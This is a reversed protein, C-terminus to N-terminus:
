SDLVESQFVGDFRVVVDKGWELCSAKVAARVLRRIMTGRLNTDVFWGGGLDESHKKVWATNKGVFLDGRHRSLYNRVRGISHLVELIAPHRDPHDQLLLRLLDKLIDIKDLSRYSVGKYIFGRPLYKHKQPEVAVQPSDPQQCEGHSVALPPPPSTFEDLVEELEDHRLRLRQLLAETLGIVSEITGLESLLQNPDESISLCTKM